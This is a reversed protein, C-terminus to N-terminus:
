LIDRSHWTSTGSIEEAGTIRFPQEPPNGMFISSSRISGKLTLDLPKIMWGDLEAVGIDVRFFEKPNLDLAEYWSRAGANDELLRISNIPRFPYWVPVPQPHQCESVYPHGLQCRGVDPLCAPRAHIMPVSGRQRARETSSAATFIDKLPITLHHSIISM